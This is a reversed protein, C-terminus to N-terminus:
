KCLIKKLQKYFWKSIEYPPTKTVTARGKNICFNKRNPDFYLKFRDPIGQIRALERPTLQLGLQNFQRNAKRAVMPYKEDLNRYVGPATTFKRDTVSWRTNNSKLWVEQAERLSLKYGSYMTIMTDLDERVHGIEPIEETGLNGRLEGSNKISKVKYISNFHYQIDNINGKFSPKKIGILILRVRTIQSNGWKSLSGTHCIFSYEPFTKEWTELPVLELSKPLNEMMFIKPKYYLLTTIFLEFSDDNLPNSLKKARSYALISSHGCNPAGVIIDCDGFSLAKSKDKILPISNFNLKWQIDNPTKFIPRCEINGILYRKLAYLIVGNGGNVGLIRM